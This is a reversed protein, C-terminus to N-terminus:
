KESEKRLKNRKAMVERKPLVKEWPVGILEELSLITQQVDSAAKLREAKAMNYHETASNYDQFDIKDTKFKESALLHMDAAEKEAQVRIKEMDVALLHNEYRHLVEARVKLKQQNEELEAIKKEEESININYKRNLLRGLNFSAGINYRPFFINNSLSDARGFHTENLNFTFAIDELWERKSQEIANDAIAIHHEYVTNGPSNLWALQVLCDEFNRPPQGEPIVVQDYDLTQSFVNVCSFLFFFLLYHRM